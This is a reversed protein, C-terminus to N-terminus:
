DNEEKFPLEFSEEVVSKKVKLVSGHRFGKPFDVKESIDEWNKLDRSLAAGRPSDYYVVWYGDVKTVTPGECNGRAKPIPKMGSYPGDLNPASVYHIGKKGGDVLNDAEVKFFFYYSSDPHPHSIYTDIIAMDSFHGGYLLAPKTFSEFDKTKIYYQKHDGKFGTKLTPIKRKASAWIMYYTDKKEDYYMEPAWVNRISDSLIGKKVNIFKQEGWNVLDKSSAYGFGKNNWSSTFVLHFDGNKDRIMSPDRLLSDGITSKVVPQNNNLPHWDMGNKSVALHMGGKQHVFYTFLYLYPEKDDKNKNCSGFLLAFMTFAITLYARFKM